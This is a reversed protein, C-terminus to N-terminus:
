KAKVKAFTSYPSGDSTRANFSVTYTGKKLKRSLKLKVSRTGAALSAAKGTGLKKKGKKDLLKVKVSKFDGGSVKLGLKGARAKLKVSTFKVTPKPTAAPTTPGPPPPPATSGANGPTGTTNILIDDVYWGCPQSVPRNEAGFTMNFRLVIKQGAFASLNGTMKVFPAVLTSNPQSPDCARPDTEGAATNQVTESVIRKFKGIAGNTVVAAEAAGFDDGENQWLSWYELSTAGDAPILLPNKMTLLSEGEIVVGAPPWPPSQGTWYSTAGGHFQNGRYKVTSEDSREWATIDPGPDSAVWQAAIDGEADDTFIPAASADAVPLCLAAALALGATRKTMQM